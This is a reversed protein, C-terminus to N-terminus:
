GNGNNLGRKNGIEKIANELLGSVRKSILDRKRMNEKLEKKKINPNWFYYYPSEIFSRELESIAGEIYKLEDINLEIKVNKM